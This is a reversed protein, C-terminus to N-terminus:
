TYKQTRQIKDTFSRTIHRVSFININRVAIKGM